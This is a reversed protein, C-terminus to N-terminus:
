ISQINCDNKMCGCARDGVWPWPATLYDNKYADIERNILAHGQKQYENKAAKLRTTAEHFYNMAEKDDPHTDIFLAADQVAFDLMMIQMLPENTNM